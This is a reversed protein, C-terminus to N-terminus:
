VYPVYERSRSARSSENTTSASRYAAFIPTLRHRTPWRAAPRPEKKMSRLFFFRCQWVLVYMRTRPQNASWQGSSRAQGASMGWEAGDREDHRAAREHSGPLGRTGPFIHRVPGFGQM